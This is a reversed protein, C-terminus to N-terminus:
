VDIREELHLTETGVKKTRETTAGIGIGQPLAGTAEFQGRRVHEVYYTTESGDSAEGFKLAVSTIATKITRLRERVAEPDLQQDIATLGIDIPIIFGNLDEGKNVHETQIEKIKPTNTNTGDRKLYARMRLTKAPVGIPTGAESAGPTNQNTRGFYLILDDSGFLGLTSVNDWAAGNLGYEIEVDTSTGSGGEITSVNDLGDADLRVTLIASDAHPDGLDDEAWEVYGSSRYQQTVGTSASVYPEEFHQLLAASADETVIHLRQIGDSEDSGIIRTTDRNATGDLYFSHWAFTQYDLCFVSGTKGSAHGGYAVFLWDTDGGWIFNAHGQRAAVLGDSSALKVRSHPGVNDIFLGTQSVTIRLIDGNAKSVYLGGDAAHSVGLAENETGALIGVPLMAQFTNNAIDLLYINDATVLAPVTENGTSFIDRISTLTINPTASAPIILGANLTWGVGADSSYAIRVQSISGSTSDPDEYFAAILYVGFGLIDAYRQSWDNARTVSTQIYSATPWNTGGLKNWTGGDVSKFIHYQEETSGEGSGIVFMRGKHETSAFARVGMANSDAINIVGNASALVGFCILIQSTGSGEIDYSHDFSTSYVSSREESVVMRDASNVQFNERTTQSGGVGEIDTTLLYYMMGVVLDDDRVTASAALSNANNNIASGSDRFPEDQNCYYYDAVVGGHQTPASAYTIVADNSGVTPAALYWISGHMGTSAQDVLKTMAVGAYTVGSPSPTGTSGAYVILLRGGYTSQVTHTLTLTTTSGASGETSANYTPDTSSATSDWTDTSANFRRSNIETIADSAYDEEFIGYLDGKFNEYTILHNGPSAHTQTQPNLPLTLQSNFRTDADADRLGNIGRETDRRLRAYGIGDSWDRVLKNIKRNNQRQQLGITRISQSESDVPYVQMEDALTFLQGNISVRESQSDPRHMTM